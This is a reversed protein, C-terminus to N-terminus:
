YIYMRLPALDLGQIIFMDAKSSGAHCDNTAESVGPHIKRLAFTVALASVFLLVLFIGVNRSKDYLAWVRLFLVVEVV